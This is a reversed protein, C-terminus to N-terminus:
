PATITLLENPIEIEVTSPAEVEREKRDEDGIKESDVTYKVPYTNLSSSIYDQFQYNTIYGNWEDKYAPSAYHNGFHNALRKPVPTFTADTISPYAPVAIGDDTTSGTSKSIALKFVTTAEPEGGDIVMNHEFEYVKGKAQVLGTNVYVTKTLDVRPDLCVGAECYNQRHSDIIERKIIAQATNVANDFQVRGGELSDDNQDTVYDGNQSLSGTPASYDTFEEWDSIDYEVSLGRSTSDEIAGYQDVSQQANMVISYKETITQAFRLAITFDASTTYVASVDKIKRIQRGSEDTTTTYQKPTWGWGDYYGAPPLDTFTISDKLIWRNSEIASEVADRPLLVVPNRLYEAWNNFGESVGDVLNKQLMDWTYSRERQRLRPYRYDFELTWKNVLQDRSVFTPVASGDFIDAESYTIDPTAKAEFPVLQFQNFPTSEYASLVTSLRDNAYEYNTAEEDFVHKSWYGGIEERLQGKSKDNILDRRKNICTFTLVNDTTDYEVEDVIGTFLRSFQSQDAYDITVSKAVWDSVNVAGSAPRIQFVALLQENEGGSVNIEGTLQTQEAGDVVVIAQWVTADTSPIVASVRQQIDRGVTSLSFVTQEISRSITTVEYLVVTQELDRSLAGIVTQEVSRGISGAVSQEVIRGITFGINEGNNNVAYSNIVGANIAM